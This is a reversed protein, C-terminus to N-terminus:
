LSQFLPPLKGDIEFPKDGQDKQKHCCIRCLCPKVIIQMDHVTGELVNVVLLKQVFPEGNVEFRRFALFKVFLSIRDIIRKVAVFGLHLVAKQDPLPKENSQCRRRKVAADEPQLAGKDADQDQKGGNGGEEQLFLGMSEVPFHTKQSLGRAALHGVHLLLGSVELGPLIDAEEIEGSPQKVDQMLFPPDALGIHVTPFPSIKGGVAYIRNKAKQPIAAGVHEQDEPITCPRM